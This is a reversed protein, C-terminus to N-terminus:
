RLQDDILRIKSNRSRKDPCNPLEARHRSFLIVFFSHCKRKTACIIVLSESIIHRILQRKIKNRKKAFKACLQRINM